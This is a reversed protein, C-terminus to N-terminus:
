QSRPLKFRGASMETLSTQTQVTHPESGLEGERTRAKMTLFLCGRWEM